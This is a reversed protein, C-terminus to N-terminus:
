SERPRNLTARGQQVLDNDRTNTKPDGYYSATWLRALVEIMSKRHDLARVAAEALNREHDAQVLEDKLAIVGADTATGEAIKGETVKELSGRLRTAVTAEELKLKNELGEARKRADAAREAWYAYLGPQEEASVHLNFKDIRADERLSREETSM